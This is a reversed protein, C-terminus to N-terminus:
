YQFYASNYALTLLFLSEKGFSGMTLICYGLHSNKTHPDVNTDKSQTPCQFECQMYSGRQIIDSPINLLHLYTLSLTYQEM